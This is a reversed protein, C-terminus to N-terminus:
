NDFRGIQGAVNQHKGKKTAILFIYVAEMIIDVGCYQAVINLSTIQPSGALSVVLSWVEM